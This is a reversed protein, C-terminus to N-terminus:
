AIFCVFFLNTHTHPKVCRCRILVVRVFDNRKEHAETPIRVPTMSHLTRHEVSQAVGGCVGSQSHNPVACLFFLSIGACSTLM